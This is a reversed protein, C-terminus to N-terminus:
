WLKLISTVKSENRPAFTSFAALFLLFANAVGDLFFM